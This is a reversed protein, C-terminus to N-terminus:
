DIVSSRRVPVNMGLKTGSTGLREIAVPVDGDSKKERSSEADLERDFGRTKGHSLDGTGCCVKRLM